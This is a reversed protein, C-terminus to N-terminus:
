SENSSKIEFEKDEDIEAHKNGDEKEIEISKNLDENDEDIKNILM